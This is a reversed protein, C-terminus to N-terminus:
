CKKLIVPLLTKSFLLVMPRLFCQGLIRLIWYRECFPIALSSFRYYLSVFHRGTSSELLLDKFERCDRTIPHSDGYCFTVVYCKKSQVYIQQYATRFLDPNKFVSKKLYKRVMESNVVQYPQNASFAVFQNLCKRSDEHFRPVADYLRAMEFYIHSIMLMETLEKKPDFHTIQLSYVDAVEKVEAMVSLYDNFKRIAGGYDGADFSEKAYRALTIRNAYRHKLRHKREREERNNKLSKSSAAM